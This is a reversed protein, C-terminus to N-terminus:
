QSLTFTETGTYAYRKGTKAGISEVDFEVQWATESLKKGSISAKSLKQIGWDMTRGYFIMVGNLSLGQDAEISFENQNAPIQWAVISKAESGNGPEGNNYSIFEFVLQNASPTVEYSKYKMSEVDYNIAGEPHFRFTDQKITNQGISQVTLSLIVSVLTLIRMILCMM